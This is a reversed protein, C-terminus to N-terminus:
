ESFPNKRAENFITKVQVNQEELSTIEEVLEEDVKTRPASTAKESIQVASPERTNIANVQMIIYGYMGSFVLFALLFRFRKVFATAIALKDLLYTKDLKM